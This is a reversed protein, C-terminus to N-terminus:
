SPRTGTKLWGAIREFGERAITQEFEGGADEAVVRISDPDDQVWLEAERDNPGFLTFLLTGDRGPSLNLRFPMPPACLLIELALVTANRLAAQTPAVSGVGDWGDRLASLDILTSQLERLLGATRDHLKVRFEKPVADTSIGHVYIPRPRATTTPPITSLMATPSPDLLGM